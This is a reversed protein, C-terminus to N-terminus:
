VSLFRTCAVLLHCLNILIPTTRDNGVTVLLNDKTYILKEVGTQKYEKMTRVTKFLHQIKSTTKFFQLKDWFFGQFIRSIQKDSTTSVM